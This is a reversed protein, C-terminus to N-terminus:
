HIGEGLRGEAVDILADIYLNLEHIIISLVTDTMELILDPSMNQLYPCCYKLYLLKSDTAIGITGVPINSNVYNIFEMLKGYNAEELDEKIVAFFQIYNFSIVERDAEDLPLFLMELRVDQKEMEGMGELLAVLTYTPSQEDPEFLRVPIDLKEFEKALMEMTTKEFQRWDNM